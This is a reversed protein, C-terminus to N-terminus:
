DMLKPDYPGRSGREEYGHGWARYDPALAADVVEPRASSLTIGAELQQPSLQQARSAIVRTASSRYVGGASEPRQELSEKALVGFGSRDIDPLAHAAERVQELSPEGRAHRETVKESVGEWAEDGVRLPQEFVGQPTAGFLSISAGAVRKAEADQREVREQVPRTDLERFPQSTTPRRQAAHTGVGSVQHGSGGPQRADPPSPNGPGQNAATAGASGKTAGGLARGVAIMMASRAIRAGPVSLPVGFTSMALAKKTVGLMVVLGALFLGPGMLGRVVGGGGTATDFTGASVGAWAAFVVTWLLPIITLTFLGRTAIALPLNGVRPLAAFGILAPGGVYLGAFAIAIVFKLVVLALIALALMIGTLLGLLPFGGQLLKEGAFTRRLASGVAGDSLVYGSMGNAVDVALPVLWFWAGLLLALGIARFIAQGIVRPATDAGAVIERYGDGISTILGVVLFFGGIVIVPGTLKALSGGVALEVHVLFKVLGLTITAKLGGLLWELADRLVSAGLKSAVEGPVGVLQKVGDVPNPIPTGLIGASAS